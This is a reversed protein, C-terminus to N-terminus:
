SRLRASRLTACLKLNEATRYTATSHVFDEAAQIMANKEQEHSELAEDVRREAQELREHITSGLLIKRLFDTM